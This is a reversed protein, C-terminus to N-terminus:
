IQKDMLEETTLADFSVAYNDHIDELESDLLRSLLNVRETINLKSFDNSVVIVKLQPKKNLLIEIKHINISKFARKM